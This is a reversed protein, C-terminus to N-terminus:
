MTFLYNFHGDPQLLRWYVTLLLQLRLITKEAQLIYKTFVKEMNTPQM